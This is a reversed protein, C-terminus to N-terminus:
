AGLESEGLSIIAFSFVVCLEVYSIMPGYVSGRCCLPSATLLSDVVVTGGGYLPCCCALFNFTPWCNFEEKAFINNVVYTILVASTTNLLRVFRRPM